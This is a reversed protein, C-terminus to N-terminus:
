TGFAKRDVMESRALAQWLPHAVQEVAPRLAFREKFVLRADNEYALSTKAIRRLREARAAQDVGDRPELSRIARAIDVPDTSRAAAGVGYKLTLLELGPYDSTVFPIGARLYETVRGPGQYFNALDTDCYLLIGIDCAAYLALLDYYALRPLLVIRDRVGYGEAEALCTGRKPNDTSLGTFVLCYRQDLHALARVLQKSRRRDMYPGGAALLVADDPLPGAPLEALVKRRLTPDRRPVPWEAPLSTRIVAPTAHLGHVLEMVKARNIENCIVLGSRRSFIGEARSYLRTINPKFDQTHYILKQNPFVFPVWFTLAANQAGQVYCFDFSRKSLLRFLEIALRISSGKKGGGFTKYLLTGIANVWKPPRKNSLTLFVVDHGNLALWIAGMQQHPARGDELEYGIYLLRKM